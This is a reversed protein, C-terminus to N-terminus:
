KDINLRAKCRRLEGREELALARSVPHHVPDHAVNGSEIDLYRVVARIQTSTKTNTVAIKAGSYALNPRRWRPIPVADIRRDHRQQSLIPEIIYPFYFLPSSSQQAISLGRM